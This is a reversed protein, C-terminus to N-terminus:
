FRGHEIRFIDPTKHDRIYSLQLTLPPSTRDIREAAASGSLVMVVMRGDAQAARFVLFTNAGVRQNAVVEDSPAWHWARFHDRLANAGTVVAEDRAATRGDSSWAINIQILRKSAYGLIYSLQAPGADPLLGGVAVSLVTTRERPHMARALQGAVAPFDRRIAQRVESESMGFRAQRFGEVLAMAAPPTDATVGPEAPQTAPRPQASAPGPQFAAEGVLLTVCAFAGHLRILRWAGTRMLTM